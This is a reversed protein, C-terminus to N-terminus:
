GTLPMAAALYILKLYEAHLRYYFCILCSAPWNEGGHRYVDNSQYLDKEKGHRNAQYHHSRQRESAATLRRL